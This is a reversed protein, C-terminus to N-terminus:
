FEIGGSLIVDPLPEPEGTIDFEVGGVHTSTLEMEELATIGSMLSAIDVNNVTGSSLIAKQQEAKNEYNVEDVVLKGYRSCMSLENKHVCGHCKNGAKVFEIGSSRHLNAGQRCSGYDSYPVPDLYYVGMLGDEERVLGAVRKIVQKAMRKPTITKIYQRLEPGFFGSNMAMKIENVVGCIEHEDVYKVIKGPAVVGAAGTFVRNSKTKTNIFARLVQEPDKGKALLRMASKALAASKMGKGVMVSMTKEIVKDCFVDQGKLRMKKTHVCVPSGICTCVSDAIYPATNGSNVPFENCSPFESSSICHFVHVPDIDYKTGSVEGRLPLSGAVVKSAIATTYKSLVNNKTPELPKVAAFEAKVQAESAERVKHTPCSAERVTQVAPRCMASRIESKWKKRDRLNLSLPQRDTAVLQRNCHKATGMNYPVKDVLVKGITACMGNVNHVCKGCRKKALIYRAWKSYGNIYKDAEGKACGPFEAASIYVSGLLGFENRLFSKIEGTHERVINPTHAAITHRIAERKGMGLMVARVLTSMVNPKEKDRSSIIDDGRHAVNPMLTAGAGADQGSDWFEELTKHHPSEPLQETEQYLDADLWGHDVSTKFLAGIDDVSSKKSV